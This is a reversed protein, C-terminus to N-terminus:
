QPDHLTKAMDQDHRSARRVAYGNDETDTYGGDDMDGYSALWRARPAAYGGDEMDGYSAPWRSRPAAYGGDEMDGYSAPRRALSDPYGGDETDGYSAHRRALPDPYEGDDTDGYSVPRRALPDPAEGDETDGYTAPRRALPDPYGGDETDGCASGRGGNRLDAGMALGDDVHYEGDHVAADVAGNAPKGDAIPDDAYGGDEGDAYDASGNEPQPVGVTQKHFPIASDQAFDRLKRGTQLRLTRPLTKQHITEDVHGSFAQFNDNLGDIRCLFYYQQHLFLTTFYLFSLRNSCNLCKACGAMPHNKGCDTCRVGGGHKWCLRDEGM